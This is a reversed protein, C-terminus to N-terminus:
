QVARMEIKSFNSDKKTYCVNFWLFLLTIRNTYVFVSYYIYYVLKEKSFDNYFRLLM